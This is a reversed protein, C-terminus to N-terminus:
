CTVFKGAKYPVRFKIVANVHARCSHRDQALDTWDLGGWGAEQLDIKINDDWRLRRRGLPIMDTINIVRKV